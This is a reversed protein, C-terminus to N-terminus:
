RRLTWFVVIVMSAVFVWLSQKYAQAHGWLWEELLPEALCGAVIGAIATLHLHQRGRQHMVLRALSMLLLGAYPGVAAAFLLSAGVLQCQLSQLPGMGLIQIPTDLISFFGEVQSFIIFFRHLPLIVGISFLTALLFIKGYDLPQARLYTSKVLRWSNHFFPLMNTQM